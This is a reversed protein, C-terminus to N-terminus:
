HRPSRCHVYRPGPKDITISEWRIPKQMHMCLTALTDMPLMNPSLSFHRMRDLGSRALRKQWFLFEPVEACCVSSMPSHCLHLSAREVWALCFLYIRSQKLISNLWELFFCSCRGYTKVCVHIERSIWSGDWFAYGNTINCSWRFQPLYESTFWSNRRIIMQRELRQNKRAGEVAANEEPLHVQAGAVNQAELVRPIHASRGGV